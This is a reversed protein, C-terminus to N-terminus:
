DGVEAAPNIHGAQVAAGQFGQGPGAGEVGQGGAGGDDAAEVADPIHGLLFGAVAVGALKTHEALFQVAAGAAGQQLQVEGLGVIGVLFLRFHLPFVQAEGHGVVGQASQGGGVRDVSVVGNVLQVLIHQAARDRQQPMNGAYRLAVGAVIALKQPNVQCQHAARHFGHDPRIGQFLRGVDPLGAVRGPYGSAQM